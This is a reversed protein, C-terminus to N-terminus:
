IERCRFLAAVDARSRLRGSKDAAIPPVWKEAPSNFLEIGQEKGSHPAFTDRIRCVGRHTDPAPDTGAYYKAKSLM